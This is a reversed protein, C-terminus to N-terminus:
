RMTTACAAALTTKGFGGAGHLAVTGRRPNGGADLVAQRLLDIERRRTVYGMPCTPRWSRCARRPAHVRSTISSPPGNRTWTTSTPMACGARCPASTWTPAGVVPYVCVGRQRAYQWEKRVVPSRLAATTMVLVMFKVQDLADTIQRWWAKGGEMRARDQWLTIEPAETELRQRLDTAYAEGDSRAYSIFVRPANDM